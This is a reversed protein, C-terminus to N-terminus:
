PAGNSNSDNRLASNSTSAGALTNPTPHPHSRTAIVDQIIILQHPSPSPHTARRDRHQPYHSHPDGQGIRQADMLYTGISRSMHRDSRSDQAFHGDQIDRM